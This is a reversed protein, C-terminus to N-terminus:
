IICLQAVEQSTLYYGVNTTSFVARYVPREFPSWTTGGVRQWIQTWDDGVHIRRRFEKTANELGIEQGCFQVILLMPCVPENHCYQFAMVRVALQIGLELVKKASILLLAFM